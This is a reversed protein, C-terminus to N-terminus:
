TLPALYTDQTQEFFIKKYKKNAVKDPEEEKGMFDILEKCQSLNSIGILYNASPFADRVFNISSCYGQNIGYPYMRKMRRRYEEHGRTKGILDKVCDKPTRKRWVGNALVRKIYVNEPIDEGEIIERNSQDLFNFKFM